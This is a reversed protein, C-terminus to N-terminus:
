YNLFWEYDFNLKEQDTAVVGLGLDIKAQEATISTIFHRGNWVTVTGTVNGKRVFLYRGSYRSQNALVVANYWRSM